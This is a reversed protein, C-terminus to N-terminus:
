LIILLATLERKNLKLFGKYFAKGNEAISKYSRLNNWKLYQLHKGIKPFNNGHHNGMILHM